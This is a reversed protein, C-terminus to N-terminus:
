LYMALYIAKMQGSNKSLWIEIDCRNDNWNTTSVTYAIHQGNPSMKVEGAGRLSLVEEFSPIHQSVATLAYCLLLLTTIKKMNFIVLEKWTRFIFTM